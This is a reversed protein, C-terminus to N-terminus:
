VPFCLRHFPPEAEALFFTYSPLIKQINGQIVKTNCLVKGNKVLCHTKQPDRFVAAVAM